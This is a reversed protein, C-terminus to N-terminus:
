WLELKFSSYFIAFGYLVECQVKLIDIGNTYKGLM